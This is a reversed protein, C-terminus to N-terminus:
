IKREKKWLMNKTQQKNFKTQCVVCKLKLIKGNKTTEAISIKGIKCKPCIMEIGWFRVGAGKKKDAM